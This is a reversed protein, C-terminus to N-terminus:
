GNLPVGKSQALRFFPSAGDPSLVIDIKQAGLKDEMKQRAHIKDWLNMRQSLIALDIDGGKKTDDTRSGFLWVLADGDVSRVAELISQKEYETLRMKEVISRIECFTLPSPADPCKGNM